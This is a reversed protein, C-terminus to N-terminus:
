SKEKREQRGIGEQEKRRVLAKDMVLLLTKWWIHGDGWFGNPEKRTKRIWPGGMYRLRLAKTRMPHHTLYM